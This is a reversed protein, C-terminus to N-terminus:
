AKASPLAAVLARPDIADALTAAINVMMGRVHNLVVEHDLKMLDPHIPVLAFMEDFTSKPIDQAPKPAAMAALRVRNEMDQAAEAWWEASIGPPNPHRRLVRQGSAVLTELLVPERGQAAVRLHGDVLEVINAVGLPFAKWRGHDMAEKFSKERFLKEALIGSRARSYEYMSRNVVFAAHDAVFDDVQNWTSVVKKRGMITDLLGM